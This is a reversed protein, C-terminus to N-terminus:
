LATKPFLFLFSSLDRREPNKKLIGEPIGKRPCAVPQKKPKQIM